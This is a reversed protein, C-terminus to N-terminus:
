ATRVKQFSYWGMIENDQLELLSKNKKKQQEKFKFVAEYSNIQFKLIQNEAQLQKVLNYISSKGFTDVAKQM